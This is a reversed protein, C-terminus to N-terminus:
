KLSDNTTIFGTFPQWRGRQSLLTVEVRLPFFNSPIGLIILSFQFSIKFFKQNDVMKGTQNKTIYYTSPLCYKATLLLNSPNMYLLNVLSLNASSYMTEPYFALNKFGVYKFLMHVPLTIIGDGCMDQQGSCTM